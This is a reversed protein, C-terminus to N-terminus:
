TFTLNQEYHYSIVKNCTDSLQRCDHEVNRFHSSKVKNKNYQIYCLLIHSMFLRFLLNNDVYESVIYVATIAVTVSGTYKVAYFEHANRFVSNCTKVILCAINQHCNFLLTFFYGNSNVFIFGKFFYSSTVLNTTEKHKMLCIIIIYAVFNSFFRLLLSNLTFYIKASNQCVQLLLPVMEVYYVCLM